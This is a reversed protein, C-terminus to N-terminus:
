FVPNFVPKTNTATAITVEVIGAAAMVTAVDGAEIVMAGVGTIVVIITTTIVSHLAHNMTIAHHQVM